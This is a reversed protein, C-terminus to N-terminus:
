PLSVEFEKGWKNGSIRLRLSHRTQVFSKYVVRTCVSSDVFLQSDAFRCSIVFAPLVHLSPFGQACSPPNYIAKCWEPFCYSPGWLTLFLADHSGATRSRSIYKFSMFVSHWPLYGCCYTLSLFVFVTHDWMHTVYFLKLHVWLFLFWSKILSLNPPNSSPPWFICVEM